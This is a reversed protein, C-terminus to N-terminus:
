LTSINTTVGNVMMWVQTKSGITLNTYSGTPGTIPAGNLLLNGTISVTRNTPHMTLWNTRGADYMMLAGGNTVVLNGGINGGGSKVTGITTINGSVGALTMTNTGNPGFFSLNGSNTISTDQQLIKGSVADAMWVIQSSSNYLWMKQYNIATSPFNPMAENYFLLGTYKNLSTLLVGAPTKLLLEDSLVTYPQGSVPEYITLNFENLKSGTKGISTCLTLAGPEHMARTIGAANNQYIIGDSQAKVRSIGNVDRVELNGPTVVMNSLTLTRFVMNTQWALFIPEPYGTAGSLDGILRGEFAANTTMLKVGGAHLIGVEDGAVSWGAVYHGAYGRAYLGWENTHGLFTLAPSLRTGDYLRVNCNLDEEWLELSGKYMSIGNSKVEGVLDGDVVWRLGNTSMDVRWVGDTGQAWHSNPSDGIRVGNTHGVGNIETNTYNGAGGGGITVNTVTMSMITQNLNTTIQITINTTPAGPPGQPGQIVPVDLCWQGNRLRWISNSGDAILVGNTHNIGNIATNTYSGAGAPRNTLIRILDVQNSINGSLAGWVLGTAVGSHALVYAEVWATSPFPAFALHLHESITQWDVISGAMPSNTSVRSISPTINIKGVPHMRVANSSILVMEFDYVSNSGINWPALKWLVPNQKGGDAFVGGVVYHNTMGAAIFRLAAANADSLDLVNTGRVYTVELIKTEGRRLQINRPETSGEKVTWYERPSIDAAQIVTGSPINTWDTAADGPLPLPSGGIAPDVTIGGFARILVANSSTVVVDYYYFQNTSACEPTWRIRVVGGTANYVSGTITWPSTMGAVWYRMVVSEAETIDHPTSGRVFTIELQRTEGRRFQLPHPDSVTTNVTWSEMSAIDAMAIGSLCGWLVMGLTALKM